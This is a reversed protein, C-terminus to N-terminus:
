SNHNSYFIIPDLLALISVFSLYLHYDSFQLLIRIPFHPSCCCISTLLPVFLMDLRYSPLLFKLVHLHLRLDPSRSPSPFIPQPIVYPSLPLPLPPHSLHNFGLFSNLLHLSHQHSKARVSRYTHVKYVCDCM